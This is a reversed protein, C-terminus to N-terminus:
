SYCLFHILSIYAVTSPHASVKWYMVVAFFIFPVFWESKNLAPIHANIGDDGLHQHRARM